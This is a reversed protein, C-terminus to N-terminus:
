CETHCENLKSTGHQAQSSKHVNQLLSMLPVSVPFDSGRCSIQKIGQANRGRKESMSQSFRDGGGAPLHRSGGRQSVGGIQSQGSQGQQNPGQKHQEM